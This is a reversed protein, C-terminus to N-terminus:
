PFLCFIRWVHTTRKAVWYVEGKGRDQPATSITLMVLSEINGIIKMFVRNM